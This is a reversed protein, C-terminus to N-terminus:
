KDSEFKVFVVPGAALMLVLEPYARCVQMVPTGATAIVFTVSLAFREPISQCLANHMVIKHMSPLMARVINAGSSRALPTQMKKAAHNGHLHIPLSFWKSDVPMKTM